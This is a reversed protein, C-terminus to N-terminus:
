SSSRGIRVGHDTRWATTGYLTYVNCFQGQINIEVGDGPKTEEVTPRFQMAYAIADRHAYLNYVGSTAPSGFSGTPLNTTKIAPSGLIMDSLLGRTGEVLTKAGAFDFSTFYNGSLDMLDQLSAPSFLWTRDTEPVDAEDLNTLAQTLDKNTITGGGSNVTNDFSSSNALIATDVAKAIAYAANRYELDKERYFSQKKLKRSVTFPLVEYTEITLNTGTETAAALNDLLQNGETFTVVSKATEKSPIHIVDGRSMVEESFDAFTRTAQLNAQLQEAVRESWVESIRYDGTTSTNQGTINAM